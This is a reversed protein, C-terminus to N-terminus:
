SRARNMGPWCWVVHQDVAPVSTRLLETPPCITVPFSALRGWPGHAGPKPWVDTQQMTRAAPEPATVGHVHLSFVLPSAAAGVVCLTTLATLWFVIRRLSRQIEDYSACACVEQSSDEVAVPQGHNNLEQAM